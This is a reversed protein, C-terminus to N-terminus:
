MEPCSELTLVSMEAKLEGWEQIQQKRFLQDYEHQKEFSYKVKLLPHKYQWLNFIFRNLPLGQSNSKKHLTM